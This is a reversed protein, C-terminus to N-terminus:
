RTGGLAKDVRGLLLYLYWSIEGQRNLVRGKLRSDVNRVSRFYLHSFVLIDGENDVPTCDLLKLRNQDTKTM